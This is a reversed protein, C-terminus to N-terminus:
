QQKYETNLKSNQDHKAMKSDETESSNDMM